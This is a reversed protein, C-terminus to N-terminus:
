NKCETRLPTPLPSLVGERISATRLLYHLAGDQDRPLVHHGKTLEVKFAKLKKATPLVRICMTAHLNTRAGPHHIVIKARQLRKVKSRLPSTTPYWTDLVFPGSKLTERKTEFTLRGLRKGCYHRQLCSCVSSSCHYM